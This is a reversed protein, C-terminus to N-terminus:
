IRVAVIEPSMWPGIRINSDCDPNMAQDLVRTFLNKVSTHHLLDRTVRNSLARFYVHIVGSSWRAGRGKENMAEMVARNELFPVEESRFM